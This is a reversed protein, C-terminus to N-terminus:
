TGASTGNGPRQICSSAWRRCIEVRHARVLPPLGKAAFSLHASEWKRQAWNRSIRRTMGRRQGNTRKCNRSMLAADRARARAGEHRTGTTRHLGCSPPRRAQADISWIMKSLRLILGYHGALVRNDIGPLLLLRGRVRVAASVVAPRLQRRHAGRGSQAAGPRVGPRAEAVGPAPTAERSVARRPRKM